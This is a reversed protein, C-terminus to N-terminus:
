RLHCNQDYEAGGKRKKWIPQIRQLLKLGKIDRTLLVLQAPHHQGDLQATGQAQLGAVPHLKPQVLGGSLDNQALGFGDGGKHSLKPCFIFGQVVTCPSKQKVFDRLRQM